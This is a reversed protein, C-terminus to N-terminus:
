KGAIFAYSLGQWTTMIAKRLGKRCPPNLVCQYIPWHRLQTESRIQLYGRKNIFIIGRTKYLLQLVHRETRTAPTNMNHHQFKAVGTWKALNAWLERETTCIKSYTCYAEARKIKHYLPSHAQKNQGNWTYLSLPSSHLEGTWSIFHTALMVSCQEAAYEQLSRIGKYSVM